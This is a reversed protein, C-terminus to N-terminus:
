AKLTIGDNYNKVHYKVMICASASWPLFHFNKSSTVSSVGVVLLQGDVLFSSDNKRKIILMGVYFTICSNLCFNYASHALYSSNGCKELSTGPEGSKQSLEEKQIEIVNGGYQM